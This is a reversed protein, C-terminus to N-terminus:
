PVFSKELMHVKAVDVNIHNEAEQNVRQDFKDQSRVSPRFIPSAGEAREYSRLFTRVVGPILNQHFEAANGISVGRSGEPCLAVPLQSNNAEEKVEGAVEV